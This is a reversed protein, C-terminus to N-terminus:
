KSRLLFTGDDQATSFGANEIPKSVEQRRIKVTIATAERLAVDSGDVRVILMTKRSLHRVVEVEAGPIVGLGCLQCHAESQAVGTIVAKEGTSLEALHM